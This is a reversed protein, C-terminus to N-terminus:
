EFEIEFKLFNWYTFDNRIWNGVFIYKKLIKIARSSQRKISDFEFHNSYKSLISFPRHEYQAPGDSWDGARVGRPRWMAMDNDSCRWQDVAMAASSRPLATRALADLGV